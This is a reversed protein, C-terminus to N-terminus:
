KMVFPVGACEEEFTTENGKGLPEEYQFYRNCECIVPRDGSGCTYLLECLTRLSSHCSIPNPNTSICRIIQFNEAVDDIKPVVDRDPIINMTYKNLADLELPPDFTLRSLKANPGSIAIANTKTQAGSIMAIGGGLSHGTLTLSDYEPDNKLQEVFDTTTRYLAVDAPRTRLSSTLKILRPYVDNFMSGFPIASRLIQMMSATLWLRCDVLYDFTGSTGRQTVIGVTGMETQAKFLYFRGHFNEGLGNEARFAQVADFEDTVNETSKGFWMSLSYDVVTRNQYALSSLFTYDALSWNPLRSELDNRPVCTPYQLANTQGPYYFDPLFTLLQNDGANVAEVDEGLAVSWTSAFLIAFFSMLVIWAYKWQDTSIRDIVSSLRAQNRWRECPSKGAPLEMTGIEEIVTVINIYRRLLSIGVSMAFLITVGQMQLSVLTLLPLVYLILIELFLMVHCFGTTVESIREQRKVIYLGTNSGMVRNMKHRKAKRRFSKENAKSKRESHPDNEITTSTPLGGKVDTSTGNEVDKGEAEAIPPMNQSSIEGSFPATWENRMAMCERKGKKVKFAMSMEQHLKKVLLIILGALLVLLVSWLWATFIGFWSLLAISSLMVLVTGIIACIFSSLIQDKMIAGPGDVIAVYRSSGFNCFVRELSWTWKTWYPRLGQADHIDYLKRPPDLVKFFPLRKTLFNSRSARCAPSITERKSSPIMGSHLNDEGGDGQKTDQGNMHVALFRINRKGSYSQTQRMLICLHCARLLTRIKGDNSEDTLCHNQVFSIAGYLEYFIATCAFVVFYITACSYNVIATITFWEYRYSSDTMFLTIIMTMMPIGLVLTFAFWDSFILSRNGVLLEKFLRRGNWTDSIMNTSLVIGEGFAICLSLIALLVGPVKLGLMGKENQARPLELVLDLFINLCFVVYVGTWVFFIVSYHFRLLQLGKHGSQVNKVQIVRKRTGLDIEEQLIIQQHENEIVYTGATTVGSNAVTTISQRSNDNFRVNSSPVTLSHHDRFYTELVLDNAGDMMPPENVTSSSDNM